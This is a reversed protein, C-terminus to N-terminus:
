RVVDRIAEDEVSPIDVPSLDGSRLLRALQVADRRDTKVRDGAKKPIQSPAVVWCRLNKKTLYRYLWYGCPGAEYVFHVTKGKSQLQRLLKDIDCQRTGITGLAVVTAEREEAVYAVAITEKHVDLGVFLTSDKAM